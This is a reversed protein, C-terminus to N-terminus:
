SAYSSKWQLIHRLYKKNQFCDSLDELPKVLKQWIEAAFIFNLMTLGFSELLSNKKHYPRLQEKMFKKLKKCIKPLKKSFYRM